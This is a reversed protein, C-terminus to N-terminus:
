VSGEYTLMIEHINRWDDKDIPINDSEDSILKMIEQAAWSEEVSLLAYEGYNDRNQKYFIAKANNTLDFLIIDTSDATGHTRIFYGVIEMLSNWLRIPIELKRGEKLM